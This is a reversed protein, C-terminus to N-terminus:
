FRWGGGLTFRFAHGFFGDESIEDAPGFTPGPYKLIRDGADFRLFTNRSMSVDIGGGIDFAPLTDGAAMLCALPPPFIAICAFPGNDATHLVGAAARVFPRLRNIRPGANVGVLGEIRRSSFPITTDPFEGPYWNFEADLGVTTTPKWTLRGGVGLDTGKFESWQSGVLHAGLEFSQARATSTSALLSFLVFSTIRKIM